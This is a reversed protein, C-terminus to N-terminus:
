RKLPLANWRVSVIEVCTGDGLDAVLVEETRGNAGYPAKGKVAAKAKAEDLFMGVVTCPGAGDCSPNYTAKYAILLKPEGM